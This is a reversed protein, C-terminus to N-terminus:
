ILQQLMANTLAIGLREGQGREKREQSNQHKSQLDPQGQGSLDVQEQRRTANGQGQINGPYLFM